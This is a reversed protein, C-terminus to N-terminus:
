LGKITETVAEGVRPGCLSPPTKASQPSCFSLTSDVLKHIINGVPISSLGAYAAASMGAVLAASFGLVRMRM